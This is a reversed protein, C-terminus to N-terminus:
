GLMSVTKYGRQCGVDKHGIRAKPTSRHLETCFKYGLVPPNVGEVERFIGVQPLTTNHTMSQVLQYCEQPRWLTVVCGNSFTVLRRRRYM